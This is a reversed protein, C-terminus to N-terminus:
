VLAEIEKTTLGTAKSIDNVTVGLSKLNRAIDKM